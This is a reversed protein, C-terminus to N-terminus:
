IVINNVNDILWHRSESFESMYYNLEQILKLIFLDYFWMRCFNINSNPYFSVTKFEFIQM